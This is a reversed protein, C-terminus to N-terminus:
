EGGEEEIIIDRVGEKDIRFNVAKEQNIGKVLKACRSGGEESWYLLIRNSVCHAWSEGLAPILQSQGGIESQRTTVHNLLVVALNYNIAISMLKNSLSQLLRTRISYGGLGEFDQRFHFAISDIVILKINPKEKMIEPLINILAINEVYDHIRYYYIHQLIYDSFDDGIPNVVGEGLEIQQLHKVLYFTIERVREVIFSGEPLQILIFVNVRLEVLFIRYIYM